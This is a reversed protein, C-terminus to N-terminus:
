ALSYAALSSFPSHPTSLAAALSRQPAPLLTLVAVVVAARRRASMCFMCLICVCLQKNRKQFGGNFVGSASSRGQNLALVHYSTTPWAAQCDSTRICIFHVHLPGELQSGTTQIDRHRKHARHSLGAQWYTEVIPAAGLRRLLSWPGQILMIM